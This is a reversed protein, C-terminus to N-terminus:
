GGGGDEMFILNVKEKWLNCAYRDVRVWSCIGALRVHGDEGVEIVSGFPIHLFSELHVLFRHVLRTITGTGNKL